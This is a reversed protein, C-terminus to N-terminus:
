RRKLSRAARSKRSKDKRSKRAGKRSRRGGKTSPKSANMITDGVRSEIFIEKIDEDVADEDSTNLYYSGDAREYNGNKIYDGFDYVDKSNLKYQTMVRKVGTEGEEEAAKLIAMKQEKTLVM